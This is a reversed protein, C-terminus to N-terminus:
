IFITWKPRQFIIACLARMRHVCGGKKNRVTMSARGEEVVIIWGRHERLCVTDEQIDFTVLLALDLIVKQLM